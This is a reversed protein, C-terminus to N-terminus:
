ILNFTFFLDNYIESLVQRGLARVVACQSREVILNLHNQTEYLWENKQLPKEFYPFFFGSSVDNM